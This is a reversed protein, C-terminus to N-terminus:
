AAIGILAARVTKRTPEDFALVLASYLIIGIVIRIAILAWNNAVSISVIVVYMIVSLLGFKAASAWPFSIPILRNGACHAGSMLAVFAILTAVAAGTIGLIPVLWLNLAVNLVACVTMLGAMIITRKHIYLAAGIIALAADAAMGSSVYPIIAAGDAYKESALVVLMERGVASVGAVLPFALMLYYHMTQRVFRATEAAGKEEWSRIYMPVVAQGVAVLFVAQVYQCFNYAASYVGLPGAGLKAEIVYRDGINLIIGSLEYAIMPIGFILMKRFLAPSFEYISFRHTRIMLAFLLATGIAEGIVTAWFYGYLDRAVFFLTCLVLALMGYRKIVNYINLQGSREEARLFNVLCSDINRVFLLASTLLFLDSIRPDSWWSTPILQSVAAWALTVALAIAMMGFLTTSLYESVGAGGAKSKSEGYFRVISHQIGLKSIALLLALTTAILNMVGYEDVTFVRTFIPFSVLGSITVLLNGISYNSIHLALKRSM